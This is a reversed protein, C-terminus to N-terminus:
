FFEQSGLASLNFMSFTQTEYENEQGFYNPDDITDLDRSPSPITNLHLAFASSTLFDNNVLGDDTAGLMNNVASVAYNGLLSPPYDHEYSSQANLNYSKNDYQDDFGINQDQYATIAEPSGTLPQSPYYGHSDLDDEAIYRLASMGPTHHTNMTLLREKANQAHDSCM